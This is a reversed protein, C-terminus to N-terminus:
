EDGGGDDGDDGDDGDGASIGFMLFCINDDKLFRPKDSDGGARLARRLIRDWM